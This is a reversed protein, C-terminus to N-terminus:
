RVRLIITEDEQLDPERVFPLSDHGEIQYLFEDRTGSFDVLLGVSDGAVRTQKLSRVGVIEKELAEKLSRLERFSRLGKILIEIGSTKKESSDIAKRISPGMSQAIGRMAGELARRLEDGGSEAIESRSNSEIIIRNEIGLAVLSLHVERQNIIECRGSVVVPVSFLEGWQFAEESSLDPATMEPGFKGELSKTLRNVPLFGLGEFIRHLILEVSSLPVRDEPTVWWQSVRNAPQEVLSVLFLVNVPQEKLPVIGHERFREAMMKENVRMRVLVKYHRDIREEILITFNEVERKETSIMERALRSFHHIAGQEGLTRMLYQEVGKNLAEGVAATRAAAVNEERILGTGIVLIDRSERKGEGQAWANSLPLCLFLQLLLVGGARLTKRPDFKRDM